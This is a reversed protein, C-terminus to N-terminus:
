SAGRGHPQLGNKRWRGGLNVCRQSCFNGSRSRFRRGCNRCKIIRKNTRKQEARKSRCKDCVVASWQRQKRQVSIGCDVCYKTFYPKSEWNVGGPGHPMHIVMHEGQKLCLLNDPANNYIDGDKHHIVHDAPIEGFHKRWVARHLDERFGGNKKTKFHYYRGGHRHWTRGDWEVCQDCM